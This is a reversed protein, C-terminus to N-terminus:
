RAMRLLVSGLIRMKKKIDLFTKEGRMIKALANWWRDSQRNRITFSPRLNFLGRFLRSMGAGANVGRRDNKILNLSDWRNKLAETLVSPAIQTSRVAFLHRKFHTPWAQQIEWSSADPEQISKTKSPPSRHLWSRQLPPSKKAMPYLFARHYNKIEMTPINIRGACRFSTKRPFPVCVDEEFEGLRNDLGAGSPPALLDSGPQSPWCIPHKRYLGWSKPLQSQAGDGRHCLKSFM